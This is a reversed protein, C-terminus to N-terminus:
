RIPHWKLVIVALALRSETAAATTANTQMQIAKDAGRRGCRRADDITEIDDVTKAQSQGTSGGSIM